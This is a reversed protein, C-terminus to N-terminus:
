LNATNKYFKNTYRNLSQALILISLYRYFKFHKIDYIFIISLRLLTNQYSFTNIHM